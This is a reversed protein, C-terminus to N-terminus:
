VNLSGARLALMHYASYSRVGRGSSLDPKRAPSPLVIAGMVRGCGREGNLSRGALWRRLEWQGDLLVVSLRWSLGSSLLSHHIFKVPSYRNRRTLSLEKTISTPISSIGNDVPELVNLALLM